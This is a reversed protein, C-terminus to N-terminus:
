PSATSIKSDKVVVLYRMPMEFEDTEVLVMTVGELNLKKPFPRLIGEITGTLFKPVM